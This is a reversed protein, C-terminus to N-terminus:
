GTKSGHYSIRERMGSHTMSPPWLAGSQTNNSSVYFSLSKSTMLAAVVTAIITSIINSESSKVFNLSSHDCVPVTTLTDIRQQSTIFHVYIYISYLLVFFLYSKPNTKKRIIEKCNYDGIIM